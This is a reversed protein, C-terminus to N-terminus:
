LDWNTGQGGRTKQLHCYGASLSGVRITGIWGKTFTVPVRKLWGNMPVEKLERVSHVGKELLNM